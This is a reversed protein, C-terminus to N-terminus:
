HKKLRINLTWCIKFSKKPPLLKLGIKNNFSDSVGTMPEIAIANLGEPTYLQLYNQDQSSNLTLDYEPTLFEITKSKLIYADDLTVNKLYFPMNLDCDVVATTINRNDTTLKKSCSFNLASKKLDASKFYPHWGLTFPFEKLGTNIVTMELALLDKTFKYHLDIRYRFPFSDISKESEYSLQVRASDSSLKYATCKFTKNYVLGHLANNAAAENCEFIYDKNAFNYKGDKIRNAFPFLISSPYTKEPSLPSLNTIVTTNSFVLEELSGGRSLCLTARLSSDTNWIILFEVGEQSKKELKFM